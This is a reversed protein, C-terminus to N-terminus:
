NWGKALNILTKAADEMIEQMLLLDNSTIAELAKDFRDDNIVCDRLDAFSLKKGYLEVNIEKGYRLDSSHAALEIRRNEAGARWERAAHINEMDFDIEARSNRCPMNM